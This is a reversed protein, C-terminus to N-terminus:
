MLGSEKFGRILNEVAENEMNLRGEATYSSIHPTLIVNEFDCLPGSYPEDVFVDLWAGAIRNSKLADILADEEILTGRAANLIYAGSNVLKTTERTLIPKDSSTHLLIIDAVPLADKLFTIDAKGNYKLEKIYPDVVLLKVKFPKLLDAVARGIKGFGIIVVTKGSLLNGTNKEWKKQHMKHNVIPINRLLALINCLTMEAVSATPGFPTYSFHIGAEKAADLDVNTIGSGCRSIVKLDSGEIIERDLPELGAVIGDVSVLLTKLEGKTLKRKYPNPIVEFGHSKLKDVAPKGMQSPGLLIKIKNM